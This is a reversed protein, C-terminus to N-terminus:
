NAMSSNKSLSVKYMGDKELIQVASSLDKDRVLLHDTSFASITFIPINKSALLRSIHSLFGILDFPLTASFTILDFFKEESIPQTQFGEKAIITVEKNDRIIAFIEDSFKPAEKLKAIVYRNEDVSFQVKYKKKFESFKM